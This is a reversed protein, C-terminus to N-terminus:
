VWLAADCCFGVKKLERMVDGFDGSAIRPTDALGKLFLVADRRDTWKKEELKAFFNASTLEQVVKKPEAYDYPDAQADLNHVLHPYHGPASCGHRYQLPEAVCRRVCALRSHVMAVWSAGLPGAGHGAM